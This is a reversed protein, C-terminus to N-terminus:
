AAARLRLALAGGAQLQARRGQASLTFHMSAWSAPRFSPPLREPWEIIRIGAEAEELGLEILEDARAIRYLDYHHITVGHGRYEQVLTFTPSTVDDSGTLARILAQAFTTKGTGLAGQLLLTDGAALAPVMRAALQETQAVADIPYEIASM